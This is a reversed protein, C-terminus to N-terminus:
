VVGLSIDRDVHTRVHHILKVSLGPSTCLDDFYGGVSRDEFGLTTGDALHYVRALTLSRGRFPRFKVNRAWSAAPTFVGCASVRPLAAVPAKAAFPRRGPLVNSARHCQCCESV